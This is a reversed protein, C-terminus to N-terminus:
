KLRKLVNEMVRDTMSDIDDLAEENELYHKAKEMYDLAKTIKAQWWHPFDVEGEMDDYKKLMALLDTAYKGLHYLNARIMHPEDDQHGVDLDGENVNEPLQKSIGKEIIKGTEKDYYYDRETYMDDETTALGFSIYRENEGMGTLEAGKKKAIKKLLEYSKDSAFGFGGDMTTGTGIPREESSSKKKFRDFIGEEVNDEIKDVFQPSVWEEQGAYKLSKGVVDKGSKLRPIDENDVALRKGDDMVVVTYSKKAENVSEFVKGTYARMLTAVRDAYKSDKGDKKLYELFTIAYAEENPEQFEEKLEVGRGKLIDAKTVKGDGTLDPFEKKEKVPGMLASKIAEKIKNASEPNMAEAQKKAINTARAYMVKEADKGYRKVFERKNGKLDKIIEERRNLEAKSLKKENINSKSTKM